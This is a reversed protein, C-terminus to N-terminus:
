WLIGIEIVCMTINWWVAVKLRQSPKSSALRFIKNDGLFDLSHTLWLKETMDSREWTLSSHCALSKFVSFSCGRRAESLNQTKNIIIFTSFITKASLLFPSLSPPLYISISVSLYTARVSQTCGQSNHPLKTFIKRVLDTSTLIHCFWNLQDHGNFFIYILSWELTLVNSYSVM